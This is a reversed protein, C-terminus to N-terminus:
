IYSSVEHYVQSKIKTEDFYSLIEAFSKKEDEDMTLKKNPKASQLTIVNQSPITDYYSKKSM